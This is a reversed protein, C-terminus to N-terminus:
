QFNKYIEKQVIPFIRKIELLKLIFALSLAIVGFTLILLISHITWLHTTSFLLINAVTFILLRLLLNYDPKFHCVRISVIIYVIGILVNTISAAISAGLSGERPILIINLGFNVIVAIFSVVMLEKLNDNAILLPGFIYATATGLFSFSLISLVKSSYSTADHYLLRMISESFFSLTLAIFLSFVFIVSFSAKVLPAIDEKKGVMKSFIPLLLAAFLFGFQNLADLLRFASAYIGAEQAGSQPLLKEILVADIRSYIGMLFILLAYPLSKKLLERTFPASFKFKFNGNVFLLYGLAVLLTILYSITQSYVFWEINFQQRLSPVILLFGCIMIMLAKDLVSLISDIRFHHLASINSRSFIILSSLAQNVCIISLLYIHYLSYGISYAIALTVVFFLSTLFLKISFIHTIHTSLESENQALYRNNYNSIGVDLLIQTMMTLSFLVFYIGYSSTGVVNQVTRDIGLIWIPKILANLSILFILNRFFIKQM